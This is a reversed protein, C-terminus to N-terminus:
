DFLSKTVRKLKPVTLRRLVDMAEESPYDSDIIVPAGGKRIEAMEEDTM